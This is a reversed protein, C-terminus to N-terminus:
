TVDCGPVGFARVAFSLPEVIGDGAHVAAVFRPV